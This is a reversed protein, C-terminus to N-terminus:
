GLIDGLISEAIDESSVHYTGNKIQERLEAIRSLEGESQVYASERVEALIKSFSLAGSSLTAEDRGLGASKGGPGPKDARYGGQVYSPRGTPTIKM